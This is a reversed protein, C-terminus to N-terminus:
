EVPNFTKRLELIGNMSRWRGEGGPYNCDEQIWIWKYVKLILEASSGPLESFWGQQVDQMSSPESGNCVELMRDVFTSALRQNAELKERVDDLIEKHGIRWRDQREEDYIWVMFDNPNTRGYFNKGGPKTICIKRGDGLTEVHYALFPLGNLTDRM